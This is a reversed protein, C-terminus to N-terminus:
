SLSNLAAIASFGEGDIIAIVDYLSTNDEEEEEGEGIRRKFNEKKM